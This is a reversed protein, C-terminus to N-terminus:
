GISATARRRAAGAPRACTSEAATEKRSSSVPSRPATISWARRTVSTFPGRRVPEGRWWDVDVRWQKAIGAVPHTQGEWILREPGDSANQAVAIPTGKAWLRTM